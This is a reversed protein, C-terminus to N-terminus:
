GNKHKLVEKVASYFETDRSVDVTRKAWTGDPKEVEIVILHQPGFRILCWDICIKSIWYFVPLFSFFFLWVAIASM